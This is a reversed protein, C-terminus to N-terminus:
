WGSKITKIIYDIDTNTLYMHNPLCIYTKAFQNLGPLDKRRGGFVSYSDNREHVISVEIGNLKMKRFFSNRNDVHITFFHNTSVRDKQQPVFQLGPVNNLKQRYISATKKRKQLSLTLASLSSLGLAAQLNTLHYGFGLEKIDFDFYGKLNPSRKIRDIGFWRRIRAREADSKKSTVLAGGEASTVIQIANFSFVTFESLSGIPKKKYSAGIAESADEIVPLRFKSAVSHIEDLDSPNGGWHYVIIAKTKKTVRKELDSSSLNGTFPDIDAFIPKAFQELIPHNTLTCTMPTTIVEDGPKVGIIALALRLASSSNNVVTINKIGLSKELSSEFNEVLSGQGIWRNKLVKTVSGLTGLPVYPYFM